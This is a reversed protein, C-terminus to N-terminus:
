MSERPTYPIPAETQIFVSYRPTEGVNKTKHGPPVTDELFLVQGAGITRVEGDGATIEVAGTLMAILQRAPTPHWDYDYDAETVRFQVTVDGIYDSLFGIPGAQSTEIEGDEFHSTGTKDQYLRVVPFKRTEM